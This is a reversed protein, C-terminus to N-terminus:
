WFVNDVVSLVIGTTIAALVVDNDVRVWRYGWPPPSLRYDRYDWVVYRSGYFAVPLRDGSRWSHVFYGHPRYYAPVHYRLRRGDNFFRDNRFRGDNFRDNRFRGDQFQNGHFGRSPSFDRPNRRDVFRHSGFRVNDFSRNGNSWRGDGRRNNSWDPRGQDRRGQDVHGQSWGSRNDARFDGQRFNRSTGYAPQGHSSRGNSWQGHSSPARSQQHSPQNSSPGGHRGRDDAHASMSGALLAVAAVIGVTKIVPHQM